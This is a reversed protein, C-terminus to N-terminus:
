SWNFNGYPTFRKHSGIAEISAADADPADKTRSTIHPEKALSMPKNAGSGASTACVRTRRFASCTASKVFM